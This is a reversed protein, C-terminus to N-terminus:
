DIRSLYNFTLHKPPFSALFNVKRCNEKTGSKKSFKLSKKRKKRQSVNFCADLISSQTSQFWFQRPKSSFLQMAPPTKKAMKWRTTFKQVKGPFGKNGRICGNRKWTCCPADRWRDSRDITEHFEELFLFSTNNHANRTNVSTSDERIPEGPFRLYVPHLITRLRM